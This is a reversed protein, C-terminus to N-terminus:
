NNVRISFSIISIQVKYGALISMKKEHAKFDPCLFLFRDRSM